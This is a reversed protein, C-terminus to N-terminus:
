EQRRALKMMAVATARTNEEMAILLQLLEGFAYLSIASLIAGVLIGIGAGVLPPGQEFGGRSFDYSVSPSIMTLGGVVLGALFVLAAAIRYLISVIRLARYRPKM